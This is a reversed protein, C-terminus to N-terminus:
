WLDRRLLRHCRRRAKRRLRSRRIRGGHEGHLVVKDIQPAMRKRSIRRFRGPAVFGQEGPVIRVLDPLSRRCKRRRRRRRRQRRRRRRGRLRRRRRHCRGRARRPLGRRRLRRSREGVLLVEAIRPAVQTRLRRRPRGPRLLGQKRPVRGLRGPWLVREPAIWARRPLAVGQAPARGGADELVDVFSDHM